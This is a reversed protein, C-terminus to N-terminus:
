TCCSMRERAWTSRSRSRSGATGSSSTSASAAAHVARDTSPLRVARAPTTDAIRAKLRGSDRSGPPRQSGASRHDTAPIWQPSRALSRRQWPRRVCGSWSCRGKPPGLLPHPGVRNVGAVDVRRDEAIGVAPKQDVGGRHTPQPFRLLHGVDDGSRSQKFGRQPQIRHHVPSSNRAPRLGPSSSCDRLPGRARVDKTTGVSAAGSVLLDFVIVARLPIGSM